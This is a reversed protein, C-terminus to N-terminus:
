TLPNNWQNNMGGNMLAATALPDNSKCCGDAGDFVYTKDM